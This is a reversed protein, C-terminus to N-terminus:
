LRKLSYRMETKADGAGCIATARYSASPIPLPPLSAPMLPNNYYAMAGAKNSGVFPNNWTCLLLSEESLNDKIRYRVLGETGTMFGKDKSSFVATSRKPVILAPTVDFGGHEHSNAILELPHHTTNELILVVTRAGDLAKAVTDIATAIEAAATFPKVIADIIGASTLTAM